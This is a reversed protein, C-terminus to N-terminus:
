SFGLIYYTRIFINKWHIHSENSTRLTTIDNNERKPKHLMLMNESTYSILCRRVIFTKHHDGLFVNIKKIVAYHNKYILLDIVRDSDNKIVEIPILKLRWKNQDHYFNLEVINKSLNNLKEFKHVDSCIFGITFDFGQINIENFYQKYTSVRNPDNSKCPHLDALISWLFCDKDNKEINLIANSRM